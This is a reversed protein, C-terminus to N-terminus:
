LRSWVGASLFFVLCVLMAYKVIRKNSLTFLHSILLVVPIYAILTWQAASESKIFLLALMAFFSFYLYYLTSVTQIKESLDSIFLNYGTWIYIVMTFGFVVWAQLTLEPLRIFILDGIRPTLALFIDINNQYISITLVFLYVVVIGILSALFVRLNFSKFRYFGYWFVPLFFLLQMWLLSGLTLIMSINLANAQSEPQQYSNFLFFYSVMICLAAINGSLDYDLPTTSILLLYFLAPLLTQNRIISFTHNLQLLLWAIGLQMLTCAWFLPTEWNGNSDYIRIGVFALLVFLLILRSSVFTKHIKEIDM